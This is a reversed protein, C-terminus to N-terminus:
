FPIFFTGKFFERAMHTLLSKFEMWGYSINSANVLNYVVTYWMKSKTELVMPGIFISVYLIQSYM